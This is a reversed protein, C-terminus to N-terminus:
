INFIWSHFPKDSAFYWPLNGPCRSGTCYFTLLFYLEVIHILTQEGLLLHKFNEPSGTNIFCLNCYRLICWILGFLVSFLVIRVTSIFQKVYDLCRHLATCNMKGHLYINMWLITNGEVSTRHGLMFTWAPRKLGFLVLAPSVSTGPLTDMNKGYHKARLLTMFAVGCRILESNADAFPWMTDHTTILCWSRMPYAICDRWSSLGNTIFQSKLYFIITKWWLQCTLM